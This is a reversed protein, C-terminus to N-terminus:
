WTVPLTTPGVTLLGSKWELETEPVAPRLAPLRRFLTTYATELELKALPAGICRHVGHGFAVHPTPTRTVDLRYPDNVLTEDQNASYTLPIVSSGAPIPVGSLETDATAIRELTSWAIPVCRLFEEVAGPILDPQTRLAALQDPNHQLILLSNTLLGATTEYGGAILIFITNILEQESLSAGEERAAILRSVLDEAPEARKAAVLGTLYDFLLGLTAQVTAVPHADISLTLDLWERLLDHDKRPVGLMESVVLAPLAVAFSSVFDAPPGSAIMDDVLQDTIEQTRTRMAEVAGTTFARVVLKRVRTHEPPDMNLMVSPVKSSQSLVAADPRQAAARSFVPDAYVRRVDDYRTALYATGGSALRVLPVPDDGRLRAFDPYVGERSEGDFPFVPLVQSETM